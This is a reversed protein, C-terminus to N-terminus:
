VDIGDRAERFYLIMTSAVVAITFGYMLRICSPVARRNRKVQSEERGGARQWAAM